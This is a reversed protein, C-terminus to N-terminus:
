PRKRASAAGPVPDRRSWLEIIHEASVTINHVIAARAAEPDRRRLAEALRSHDQLSARLAEDCLLVGLYPGIQLGLMECLPMLSPAEAARYVSFHLEHNAELLTNLDNRELAKIEVRYLAAVHRALAPTAREAAWAAATGEVMCRVRCLDQLKEPQFPPVRVARKPAAEFVQQTVLRRIAERVPMPSTSFRAALERVTVKQGPLFSGALVAGKLVAYVREHLLDAPARDSSTIIM